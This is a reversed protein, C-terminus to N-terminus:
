VQRQFLSCWLSTALSLELAPFPHKNVPFGAEFAILSKLVPLYPCGSPQLFPKGAPIATTAM